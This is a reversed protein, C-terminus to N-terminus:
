DYGGLGDSSVLASSNTTEVPVNRITSERKINDQARPARCERAFHGKKHFNYCEVKTKDFAITENGNLNLKRGTNKLFRKDRMKLMAMQRKLDMEELDDLHIQELDENVLQSSSSQSSLFSCIVVDSLNDINTSNAANVQNGGTSVGNTTNVAQATNAARNTNNNNSSSVFAVNQTSLNSSSM